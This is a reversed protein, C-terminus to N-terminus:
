SFGATKNILWDNFLNAFIYFLAESRVLKPSFYLQKKM